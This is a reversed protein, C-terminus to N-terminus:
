LEVIRAETGHVRYARVEPVGYEDHAIGFVRDRRVAHIYFGAPLEVSAVHTGDQLFVAWEWKTRDQKRIGIWIHGLDDVALGTVPPWVYPAGALFPRALEPHMGAAAENLEETTVGIPSTEYSFTNQMGDRPDVITAELSLSSAYVIHGDRAVRVFSRRGYPHDGVSVAGGGRWFLRRAVIAEGAPFALLTDDAQARNKIHLHRLMNIRETGLESGSAMYPAINWVLFGAETTTRWADGIHGQYGQGSSFKHVYAAKSSEPGFVTARYLDSDWVAVSDARFVHVTWLRKFEGPGEGRGGLAYDYRLDPSLVIIERATSEPVYVRGRSDVDLNGVASLLVDEGSTADLAVELWPGNAWPRIDARPGVPSSRSTAFRNEQGADRGMCGGVALLIMISQLTFRLQRMKQNKKQPFAPYCSCVRSPSPASSSM